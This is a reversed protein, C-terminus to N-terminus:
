LVICESESCDFGTYGAPCVCRYTTLDCTGPSCQIDDVCYGLAVSVLFPCVSVHSIVVRSYFPKGNVSPVVALCVMVLFFNFEVVKKLEAM